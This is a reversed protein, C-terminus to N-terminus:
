SAELMAAYRMAKDALYGKLGTLQPGLFATIEVTHCARRIAVNVDREQNSAATVVACPEYAQVIIDPRLESFVPMGLNYEQGLWATREAFAPEYEISRRQGLSKFTKWWEQDAATREELSPLEEDIAELTKQLELSAKKAYTPTFEIVDRLIRQGIDGPKPQHALTIVATPALAVWRLVFESDVLEARRAREADGNVLPAAWPRIDWIAIFRGSFVSKPDDYTSEIFAGADYLEAGLTVLTITNRYAPRGIRAGSKLAADVAVFSDTFGENPDVLVDYVRQKEIPGAVDLCFWYSVNNLRNTNTRVIREKVAADPLPLDQLVALGRHSREIEAALTTWYESRNSVLVMLTRQFDGRCERVLWEAVSPVIATAAQNRHTRFWGLDVRGLECLIVDSHADDVLLLRVKFRTDTTAFAREQVLWGVDPHVRRIEATYTAERIVDIQMGPDGGVLTHWLNSPTPNLEGQVARRFDSELRDLFLTKGSGQAGHILLATSAGRVFCAEFAERFPTALPQWHRLDVQYSSFQGLNEARVPFQLRRYLSPMDDLTHDVRNEAL